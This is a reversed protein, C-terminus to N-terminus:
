INIIPLKNSYVRYINIRIFQTIILVCNRFVIVSPQQINAKREVLVSKRKGKIKNVYQLNVQQFFFCKGECNFVMKKLLCPVQRSFQGLCQQSCKPCTKHDSPTEPFFEIRGAGSCKSKLIEELSSFVRKQSISPHFSIKEFSLSRITWEKRINSQGSTECASARYCKEAFFDVLFDRM